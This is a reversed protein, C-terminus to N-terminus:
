QDPLANNLKRQDLEYRLAARHDEPMDSALEEVLQMTPLAIFPRVPRIPPNAGFGMVKRPRVKRFSMIDESIGELAEFIILDNTIVEFLSSASGGSQWLSNPHYNEMAAFALLYFRVIRDAHYANLLGIKDINAKYIAFYDHAMTLSYFPAPESARGTEIMLRARDATAYLSGRFDRHRALRIIGEVESVLASLTSQALRRSAIRAEIVKAGGGVAVGALAILAAAIEGGM